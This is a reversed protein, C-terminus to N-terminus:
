AEIILQQIFNWVVDAEAFVRARRVLLVQILPMFFAGVNIARRSTTQTATASASFSLWARPCLGCAATAFVEPSGLGLVHLSGLRDDDIVL